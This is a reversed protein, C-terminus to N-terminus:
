EVFAADQGALGIDELGFGEEGHRISWGVSLEIEKPLIYKRWPYVVILSVLLTMGLEALVPYPCKEALVELGGDFSQEWAFGVLIGIAYIISFIATDADKGTCDLDAVKDLSLIILFAVISVICALIVRSAIANPSGIQEVKAIQWKGTYVLGWSIGMSCVIKMISVSRKVFSQITGPTVRAPLQSHLNVLLVTLIVFGFTAGLLSLICSLPHMYDEPTEEIGLSNPLVGSLNFRVAQVTLFSVCLGCVDNECEFVEEDWKTVAYAIGFKEPEGSVKEKWDEASIFDNRGKGMETRLSANSKNRTTLRMERLLRCFLSLGVYMIPAVAFTTPPKSKFFESQQMRGGFAIAAFGTMHAQLTGWCKILTDRFMIQEEIPYEMEKGSMADIQTLTKSYPFAEFAGSMVAVTCQLTIFYMFMQIADGIFHVLASQDALVRTHLAMNFAQFTLVASFISITSSIMKWGYYRMDEDPYNVIMFLSMVFMVAGLLMLSIALDVKSFEHEEEEGEQEEGEEGLSEGEEGESEGESKEGEAAEHDEGEAGGVFNGHDSTGGKAEGEFGTKDFHKEEIFVSGDESHADVVVLEGQQLRRVKETASFLFGDSIGEVLAAPSGDCIRVLSLLVGSVLLQAIM